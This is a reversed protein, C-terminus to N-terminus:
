VAAARLARGVREIGEEIRDEPAQAYTLRLHRDFPEGASFYTGPVFSVGEREAAATM